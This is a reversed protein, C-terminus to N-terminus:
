RACADSARWISDHRRRARARMSRLMVLYATAEVSEDTGHGNEGVVVLGHAPVAVDLHAFNRFERASLHTLVIAVRQASVIPMVTRYVRARAQGFVGADRRAHGLHEVAPWFQDSEIACRVMMSRCRPAVILRKLAVRWRWRPM